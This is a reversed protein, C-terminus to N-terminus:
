LNGAKERKNKQYCFSTPSSISYQYFHYQCPLFQLVLLFSQATVGFLYPSIPCFLRQRGTNHSHLPVLYPVDTMCPSGGSICVRPNIAQLYFLFQRLGTSPLCIKLKITLVRYLLLLYHCQIRWLDPISPYPNLLSFYSIKKESTWVFCTFASITLDGVLYM